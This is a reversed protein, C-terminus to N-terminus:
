RRRFHKRQLKAFIEDVLDEKDESFYFFIKGEGTETEAFRFNKAIDELSSKLMERFEKFKTSFNKKGRKTPSIKIEYGILKEKKIAIEAM